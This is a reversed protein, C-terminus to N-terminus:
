HAPLGGAAPASIGGNTDHTAATHDLRAANFEDSSMHKGTGSLQGALDRWFIYRTQADAMERPTVDFDTRVADRVPDYKEQFDRLEDAELNKKNLFHRYIRDDIQDNLKKAAGAIRSWNAHQAEGIQWITKGSKLAAQMDSLTVGNEVLQQAVFFSGYDLGFKRRDEVMRPRAIKLTDAMSLSVIRRGTKDTAIATIKRAQKEAKPQDDAFAAAPLSLGLVFLCALLRM